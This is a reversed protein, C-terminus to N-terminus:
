PAPPHGAEILTIGDICLYNYQITHCIKGTLRVAAGDGVIAGNDLHVRFDDAEYTSPLREMQNLEVPEGYDPVSIFVPIDLEPNAYDVLGVGCDTDCQVSNPFDLYGEITVHRQEPYQSITSFNVEVPPQM